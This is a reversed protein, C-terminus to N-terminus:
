NVMGKLNTDKRHTKNLAVKSVGFDHLYKEVKNRCVKNIKIKYKTRHDIM